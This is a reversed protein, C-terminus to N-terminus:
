GVGFLTDANINGEMALFRSNLKDTSISLEGSLPLEVKVLPQVNLVTFATDYIFAREFVLFTQPSSFSKVLDMSEVM